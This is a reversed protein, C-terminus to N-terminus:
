QRFGEYAHAQTYGNATDQVSIASLCTRSDMPVIAKIEPTNRGFYGTAHRTRVAALKRYCSGAGPRTSTHGLVSSIMLPRDGSPELGLRESGVAFRPEILRWNPRRGGTSGLSASSMPQQCCGDDVTHCCASGTASASGSPTAIGAHLTPQDDHM